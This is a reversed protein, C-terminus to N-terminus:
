NVKELKWIEKVYEEITRDSSFKGSRAVNLIAMKAWKEPQMYAEELKKQVKVYSEFDKLVFYEDAPTGNGNLLAEYIDKYLNVDENISGDILRTLVMRLDQNTNYIFWPDYAGSNRLGTIEDATLGFIFINEDGVEEKIEINAGDLTGLTIAGNLMFKMNGTGSAEKGATSIQESVDSAPFIKEALSVSYNELFVVKIKNNITDDNNIMDAIDNILKIILKARHYGPAAKAAFIFTRSVIDIEPHMRVKNYLYLIHLINLLQRKYEHLRKVHVDFISSPNVEIDLVKKIYNALKVKNEFKIDMFKIIFEKDDVFNELQKLESLNKIWGDGIKSRILDSLDKNSKLLWRRQTIGNTKNNFKDRYIEYFDKLEQKKLIETHLEAVGNVSFSGVIALHAMKVQGDAVIAMRRIEQQSKKYKEMLEACFRRNIEEIIQYIRPLLRNFLDVPWKELAESLITHNTYACVAKTINWAEDWEMGEQDMLIRMLEAVAVAPHTDNLQFVVKEKLNMLNHNSEKFKRIAEQLTASVFFYQQKLRLEKGRIHNDNPYLVEVITEAMNRESVAEQYFGEEFSKLNLEHMPEADWLRLTNVIYSDYGIVPIDYPVARVIDYNEHIFRLRGVEDKVVRVNGGYKVEVEYESRKVEWPNGKELWMDPYEVQYGNEIKQEFIGYKYRIGCGYAPYELTALSDIFCAALRGLGGNGLGADKEQEEIENYDIHLEELVEQIEDMLTLNILNNGLARGLLFEMSLYYLYKVNRSQYEQHAKIWREMIEERITFAIANYIEEGKAHEITKKSLYKVNEIIGKKLKEKDFIKEAM